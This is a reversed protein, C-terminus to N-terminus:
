LMFDPLVSAQLPPKKAWLEPVEKCNKVLGGNPDSKIHLQSFCRKTGPKCSFRNKNLLNYSYMGATPETSAVNLYTSKFLIIFLVNSISYLFQLYYM